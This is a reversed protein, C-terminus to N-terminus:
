EVEGDGDHHQRHDDQAANAVQPADDEARHHETEVVADQCLIRGVPDVVEGLRQLQRDDGVQQQLDVQRLVLVQDEADRQDDQHQRPRLPDEGVSLTGGLQVGLRGLLYFLEAFLRQDIAGHTADPGLFVALLETPNGYHHAANGPATEVVNPWPRVSM